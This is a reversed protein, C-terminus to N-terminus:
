SQKVPAASIIKLAQDQKDPPLRGVWTQTVVGRRNVLL